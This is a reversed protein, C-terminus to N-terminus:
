IRTILYTHYFLFKNKTNNKKPELGAPLLNPLPSKQQHGTPPDRLCDKRPGKKKQADVCLAEIGVRVGKRERPAEKGERGVGVERREVQDPTVAAVDPHGEIPSLGGSAKTQTLLGTNLPGLGGQSLVLSLVLIQYTPLPSTISSRPLADVQKPAHPDMTRHTGRNEPIQNHSPSNLPCQLIERCQHPELPTPLLHTSTNSSVIM